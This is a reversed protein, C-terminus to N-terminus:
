AEDGNQAAAVVEAVPRAMAWLATATREGIAAYTEGEKPGDLTLLFSGSENRWPVPNLGAVAAEAAKRYRAQTWCWVYLHYEAAGWAELAVGATARGPVLPVSFEGNEFM